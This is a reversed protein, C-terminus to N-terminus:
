VGYGQSHVPGGCKPCCKEGNKDVPQGGEIFQNWNCHLDTKKVEAIHKCPKGKGFKFADCTCHYDYQYPGRPTAGYSVTYFKGKTGSEIKTSFHECSECHYFHEVTLDPM